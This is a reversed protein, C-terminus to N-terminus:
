NLWDNYSLAGYRKAYESFEDLVDPYADQLWKFIAEQYEKLYERRNEPCDQNEGKQFVAYGTRQASSVDPHEPMSM